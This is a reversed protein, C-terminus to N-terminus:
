LPEKNKVWVKYGSYLTLALTITLFLYMAIELGMNLGANAFGFFMLYYDSYLLNLFIVFLAVIQIFTKIKGSKAAAVVKGKSMLKFRFATVIIERLIIPVLWWFSFIGLVSLTVFTGLNLLKDAIPDAIKGFDTIINYRRALMGDYLDTLAAITFVVFAVMRMFFSPQLLAYIVIVALIIRIVTLINPLNIIKKAM